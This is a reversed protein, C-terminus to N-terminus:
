DEHTIGKNNLWDTLLGIVNPDFHARKGKFADPLSLYINSPTVRIRSKMSLRWIAM